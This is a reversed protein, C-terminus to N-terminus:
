PLLTFAESTASILSASSIGMSSPPPTRSSSAARMHNSAPTSRRMMPVMAGAQALKEGPLDANREVGHVATEFRAAPDSVGSKGDVIDQGAKDAVARGEDDVGIYCAVTRLATHVQGHERMQGGDTRHGHHGCAAHGRQVVDLGQVGEAHFGVKLPGDRAAGDIFARKVQRFGHGPDFGLAGLEVKEARGAFRM